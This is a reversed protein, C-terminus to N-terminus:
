GVPTWIDAGTRCATGVQRVTASGRTVVHTYGRCDQSGIRYLQTPKVEGSYGGASWPVAQGVAGFQLAQYQALLAGQEARGSLTLQDNKPLSPRLSLASAPLAPTSAPTLAAGSSLCGGLTLSALLAALTQFARRM